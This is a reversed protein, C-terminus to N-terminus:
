YGNSMPALSNRKLPSGERKQPSLSRERRGPPGVFDASASKRLPSDAHVYVGLSGGDGAPASIFQPQRIAAQPRLPSSTDRLHAPTQFPPAGSTYAGRLPTRRYASVEPDVHDVYKPNPRTQFSKNIVFTPNYTDVYNDDRDYQPLTGRSYKRSSYQTGVDRMLPQTRPHVFKTDYENMVEKHILSSDKSQQSFSTCLLLLQASLLGGLVIATVVTTSPRLDSIAAPLLLWYVLVHGPSLLCFMRLSIPTPDWVAIEWVDRTADPYSRAEASGGAIINSLFRLPSSAM